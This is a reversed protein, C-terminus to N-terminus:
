REAAKYNTRLLILPIAFILVAFVDLLGTASTGSSQITCGGSAPSSADASLGQNEAVAAKLPEGAEPKAAANADGTGAAETGATGSDPHITGTTTGGTTGSTGTGGTGTGSAGSNNKGDGANGVVADSTVTDVLFGEGLPRGFVTVPQQQRLASGLLQCSELSNQLLKLSKLPVVKTPDKDWLDQLKVSGKAIKINAEDQGVKFTVSCIEFPDASYNLHIPIGTGTCTSTSTNCFNAIEPRVAPNTSFKSESPHGIYQVSLLGPVSASTSAEMMGTVSVPQSNLYFDKALLCLATQKQLAIIFYPDGDDVPPFASFRATATKGDNATLTARCDTNGNVPNHITEFRSIKGTFTTTSPLDNSPPPPPPSDEELKVSGKIDINIDDFPGASSVGNWVFISVVVLSFWHIRTM